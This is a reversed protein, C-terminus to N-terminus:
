HAPRSTSAAADGQRKPNWHEIRRGGLFTVLAVLAGSLLSAPPLLLLATAVLIAQTRGRLLFSLLGGM